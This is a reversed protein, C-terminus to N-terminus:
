SRGLAKLVGRIIEERLVTPDISVSIIVQCHPCTYCVGKWTTPAQILDLTELKATTIQLKCSPCHRPM